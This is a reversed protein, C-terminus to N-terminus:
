FYGPNCPLGYILVLPLVRCKKIAEAQTVNRTTKRKIDKSFSKTVSAASYIRSSYKKRLIICIAAKYKQFILFVTKEKGRFYFIRKRDSSLHCQSLWMQLASTISLHSPNLDEEVLNYLSIFLQFTRVARRRWFEDYAKNKKLVLNPWGYEINKFCLHLPYNFLHFNYAVCSSFSQLTTKNSKIKM